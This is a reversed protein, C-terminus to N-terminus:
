HYKVSPEAICKDPHRRLIGKGYGGSLNSVAQRNTGLVSIGRGGWHIGGGQKGLIGGRYIIII